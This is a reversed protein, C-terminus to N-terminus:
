PAVLAYTVQVGATISTRGREVRPAAPVPSSGGGSTADVFQNMEDDGGDAGAERVRIPAGLRMGAAAALREAKAKADALAAVLTRAYVERIDAVGLEPGDVSTAGARILRDVLTGADALNRVTVRVLNSAVWSTGRRRSRERRVNVVDTQVDERRVGTARAAGVVRQVSASASKLAAAATKRRVTVAFRFTGIDNDAFSTATGAVTIAQVPAAPQQAAAPAPAVLSIALAAAALALRPARM